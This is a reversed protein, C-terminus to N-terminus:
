TFCLELIRRARNKYTRNITQNRRIFLFIFFVLLAEPLRSTTESQTVWGSCHCHQVTQFSGLFFEFFKFFFFFLTDSPTLPSSKNYTSEEQANCNTALPGQFIKHLLTSSTNRTSAKVRRHPKKHLFSNLLSSSQRIHRVNM